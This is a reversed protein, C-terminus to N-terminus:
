KQLNGVFAAIARARRSMVPQATDRNTLTRMQRQPQQPPQFAPQTPAFSRRVKNASAIKIADKVLEAEILSMAERVDMVEGSSDYTTEILRIVDPVRRQTRVLEFEDGQSSLQQAESTMEHIVQQRQQADRDSLSKNVDDKVSRLEDRLAQLEPNVPNALIADTLQEYTVGAEQLVSLPTEKLRAIIDASPTQGKVAAERAALEREKVQLARRERALAAYQPSLPKTEETTANTQGDTSSIANEQVPASYQQAEQYAKEPSVNVRMRINRLNQRQRTLADIPTDSETITTGNFAAKAREVASPSHTQNGLDHPQPSPAAVPSIKM